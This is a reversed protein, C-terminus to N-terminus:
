LSYYYPISNSRRTTRTRALKRERRELIEYIERDREREREEEKSTIL